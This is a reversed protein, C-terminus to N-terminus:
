SGAVPFMTAMPSFSKRHIACPGHELIAKLHRATGYGKHDAFGYLPYVSDMSRMIRDRHVKALISAAAICAHLSDGRVVPRCDCCTGAPIQLGDVLCLHGPSSIAGIAQAMGKLTACLINHSDIYAPDIEAIHYEATSIIVEFLQERRAPSIKKSDNLGPIRQGYDLAVAAVVVPGALAGRGAEDVGILLPNRGLWARDNRYLLESADNRSPRESAPKM